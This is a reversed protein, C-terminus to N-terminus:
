ATAPLPRAFAFSILFGVSWAIWSVFQLMEIIGGLSSLGLANSLGFLICSAGVVGACIALWRPMQPNGLGLYSVLLFSAGYIVNTIVGLPTAPGSGINELVLALVGCVLMVLSLAANQPRHFVYLAYFVVASFFSAIISVAMFAGGRGGEVLAFMAFSFVVSLIASWGAFRFLSRNSMKIEKKTKQVAISATYRLSHGATM